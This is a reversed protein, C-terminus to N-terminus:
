MVHSQWSQELLKDLGTSRHVAILLYSM